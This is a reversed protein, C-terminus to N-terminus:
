KSRISTRLCAESLIGFIIKSIEDSNIVIFHEISYFTHHCQIESKHFVYKESYVLYKLLVNVM